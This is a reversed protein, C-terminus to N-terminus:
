QKGIAEGGTGDTPPTSPEGVGAVRAAQRAFKVIFEARTTVGVKKFINGAHFKVTKLTIFCAAAIDKYKDATLMKDFIEKERRTLEKEKM